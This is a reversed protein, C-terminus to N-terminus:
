RACANPPRVPRATSKPCCRSRAGGLRVVGVYQTAQVEWRGGLLVPASSRRGDSSQAAGPRGARAAHCCLWRQSRVRVPHRAHFVGGAPKLHVEQTPRRAEVAAGATRGLVERGAGAGPTTRAKGVGGGGCPGAGRGGPPPWVAEGGPSAPEQAEERRWRAEGKAIGKAMGEEVIARYTVSEEMEVVGRLLKNVLEREYRLGM